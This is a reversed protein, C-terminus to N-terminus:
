AFVSSITFSFSFMLLLTFSVTDGMTKRIDDLKNSLTGMKPLHHPLAQRPRLAADNHTPMSPKEASKSEAQNSVHKKESHPTAPESDFNGKDEILLMTQSMKEDLETERDVDDVSKGVEEDREDDDASRKSQAFEAAKERFEQELAGITQWISIKRLEPWDSTGDPCAELQYGRGKGSVDPFRSDLLPNEGQSELVSV